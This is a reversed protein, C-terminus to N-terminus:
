AGAVANGLTVADNLITVVNGTAFAVGLSVASGVINVISNIKAVEDKLKDVKANASSTASSITEFSSETEAFVLLSSWTALNAAITSLKSLDQSLRANADASLPVDPNNLIASVKNALASFDSALQAIQAGSLPSNAPM